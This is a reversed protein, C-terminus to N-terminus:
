HQPQHRRLPLRLHSLTRPRLRNLLFSRRRCKNEGSSEEFKEVRCKKGTKALLEGVAANVTERLLEGWGAKQDTGEGLLPADLISADLVIVFRGEEDGAISTAFGFSGAGLPRPLSEILEPEGALAQQFLDAAVQAWCDLYTKM